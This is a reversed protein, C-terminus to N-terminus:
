QLVFETGHYCGTFSSFSQGVYAEVGAISFPTVLPPAGGKKEKENKGKKKNM